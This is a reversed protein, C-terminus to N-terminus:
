AVARKAPVLAFTVSVQTGVGEASEIRLTGGHREALARVLALGLGTGSKALMPDGCVQEFPRGLRGIESEPIGIGTDCVRICTLGNETTACVRVEGGDPTFKIANSLLNIVIQKVARRDAMLEPMVGDAEISLAVGAADARNSLMRVTDAITGALDVREINLEMKGAEIKAMDLMDSILDLLLQGSDYVLTVYEAYRTNGLPGFSGQRMLDSFGIIAILPTRLEHSMNALFASKAKNAAEARAQAAKAALEQEKRLTIDRAVSIYGQYTGDAAYRARTVVELWVYHGDGHKLRYSITERDLHPLEIGRLGEVDDPHVFNMWRGSEIDDSSRGIVRGIADSAFLIKRDPGFLVIIDSAETTMVRYMEYAKNRAEEAEVRATVDRSVSIVNLTERTKPDFM